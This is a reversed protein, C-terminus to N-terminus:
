IWLKQLMHWDQPHEAIGIAFADAMLQTTRKVREDLPGDTPPVIRRLVAEVRDETYWCDVAYLPAGTRIALIAPGAPMRTRGGFFEVEVGGRSLDRDALLPVVWGRELHEALVDLPPREGGTLPLVRMGLSERYDLFKQFVAEPKLREAVTIMQWDHSVVWAAAADWNAVHPLALVLGNGDAVATKMQDYSEGLMCFGAANQERTQSPLRFAEMWYRAYSRLGDRVLTEPMDPGVVQQYNRRLRQTAPGNKRWARDAVRTFLARAVPLPLARVLRWGATFGLTTLQDKM